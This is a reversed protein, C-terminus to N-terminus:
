ALQLLAQITVVTQTTSDLTKNLAQLADAIQFDLAMAQLNMGLASDLQAKMQKSNRATPSRQVVQLAPM